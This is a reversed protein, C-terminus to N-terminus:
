PNKAQINKVAMTYNNKKKDKCSTLLLCNVLTVILIRYWM